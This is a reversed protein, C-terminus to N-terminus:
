NNHHKQLYAKLYLLPMQCHLVMDWSYHGMSIGNTILEVCRSNAGCFLHAVSSFTYGEQTIMMSIDDLKKSSEEGYLKCLVADYDRANVDDVEFEFQYNIEQAIQDPTSSVPIGLAQTIVYKRLLKRSHVNSKGLQNTITNIKNIMRSTNADM